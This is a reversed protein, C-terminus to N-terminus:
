KFLVDKTYGLKLLQNTIEDEPNDVEKNNELYKEVKAKTIDLAKIKGASVMIQDSDYGRAKIKDFLGSEWFNKMQSPTFNTGLRSNLTATRQKNLEAVKKNTASKLSYESELFKNVMEIRKRLAKETTPVQRNFRPKGQKGLQRNVQQYLYRQMGLNKKQEIRVLRQDARKALRVYENRLEQVARSKAQKKKQRKNAM